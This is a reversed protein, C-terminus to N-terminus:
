SKGEFYYEASTRFIEDIEGFQHFKFDSIQTPKIKYEPSIEVDILLLDDSFEAREFVVKTDIVHVFIDNLIDRLFEHVDFM